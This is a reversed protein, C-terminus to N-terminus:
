DKRKENVKKMLLREVCEDGDDKTIMMPKANEFPLKSRTEGNSIRIVEVEETVHLSLVLHTRRCTHKIQEERKRGKKEFLRYRSFRPDTHTVNVQM